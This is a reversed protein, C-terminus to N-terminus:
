LGSVTDPKRSILEIQTETEPSHGRVMKTSPPDRDKRQEPDKLTQRTPKSAQHLNPSQLYTSTQQNTSTQLYTFNKLNTSTRLDPPDNSPKSTPTPTQRPEKPNTQCCTEHQTRDKEASPRIVNVLTRIQSRHNEPHLGEGHSESSSPESTM